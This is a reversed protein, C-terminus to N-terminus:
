NSDILPLPNKLGKYVKEISLTKFSLLRTVTSIVQEKFNDHVRKITLKTLLHSFPSCYSLTIRFIYFIPTFNDETLRFDIFVTFYITEKLTIVTLM